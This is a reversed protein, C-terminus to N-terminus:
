RTVCESEQVLGNLVVSERDDLPSLIGVVNYTGKKECCTAFGIGKHCYTGSPCIKGGEGCYYENGTAPDKLPLGGECPLSSKAETSVNAVEM